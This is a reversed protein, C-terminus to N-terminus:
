RYTGVLNLQLLDNHIKAIFPISAMCFQLAPVPLNDISVANFPPRLMSTDTESEPVPM